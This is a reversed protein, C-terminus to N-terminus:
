NVHETRPASAQDSEGSQRENRDIQDMSLSRRSGARRGRCYTFNAEIPQFRKAFRLGSRKAAQLNSLLRSAVIQLRRRVGQQLGSEEGSDFKIKLGV